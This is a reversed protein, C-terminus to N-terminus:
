FANDIPHVMPLPLKLEFAEKPFLDELRPRPGSLVQDHVYDIFTDLNKRNIPSLGYSWPDPGLLAREEEYQARFWALPVVRPNVLRRFALQKAEEFAQTLSEVVWPHQAVIESPVTTIHMIPFIGTRRYYDIEVEKYNPWLRAVRPDGKDIMDTVNASVMGDIEGELLMQELNKKKRDVLEIKVDKPVGRSTEDERDIVWTVSRYPVGFDELFGRMWYSAAAGIGGNNAIKRGVLDSPEAIGKSTNIYIFGHRFRRHLFVPIAALEDRGQRRLVVYAGTNFENIDAGKGAAMLAHMAAVGPDPLVQLDIGKPKVTGDALARVIEYPGTMMTLRLQAM